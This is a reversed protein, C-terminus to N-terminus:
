VPLTKTSFFDGEHLMLKSGYDSIDIFDKNLANILATNNIGHHHNYVMLYQRVMLRILRRNYYKNRQHEWYGSQSYFHYFRYDTLGEM